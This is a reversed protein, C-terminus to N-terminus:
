PSTQRGTFRLPLRLRFRTGKGPASDLQISGKLLQTVWQHVLHLGLGTHGESRGSTVFPDFLRSHEEAPIGRGNDSISLELQDGSLLRGEIRIHGAEGPQFAHELANEVLNQLVQSLLGPHSFLECEPIDLTLKVQGHKLRPKLSNALDNTCDRLRFTVPEDLSRDVALRKFSRVLGAARELNRHALRFGEDAHKLYAHMQDETLEGQDVAQELKHLSDELSTLTVLTSGTPTNLEHAVGAVMMGLSSLKRTEVLENQLQQQRELSLKLEQNAQRLESQEQRLDKLLQLRSDEGKAVRWLFGGGTLLVLASIAATPLAISRRIQALTDPSGSLILHWYREESPLPQIRSHSWIHGGSREGRHNAQQRIQQWLAPAAQALSLYPQDYLFGWERWPAPHVLWYGQANLLEIKRDPQQLERLEKFLETLSFNIVLVGPKLGDVPTTRMAARVTPVPPMALVEQEVNLDLPSLYIEGPALRLAERFYYRSRKNQLQTDSVPQAGQPSLNVRVREQGQHDLWRIQSILASAEGFRSFHRSMLTIDLPSDLQLSDRFAVSQQLIRTLQALYGLERNLRASLRDILTTQTSIVPQLKLRYLESYTVGATIGTVLLLPM